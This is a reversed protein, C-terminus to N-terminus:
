SEQPPELNRVLLTYIKVQLPHRGWGGLGTESGDTNLRKLELRYAEEGMGNMMLEATILEALDQLKM